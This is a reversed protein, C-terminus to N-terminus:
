DSDSFVALSNLNKRCFKLKIDITGKLYGFIRKLAVWHCKMPNKNFQKKTLSMILYLKNAKMIKLDTEMPTSVPKCNNMNFKCLIIQIYNAQDITIDEETQNINM